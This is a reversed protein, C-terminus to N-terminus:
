RQRSREESPGVHDACLTVASSALYRKVLGDVTLERQIADVTAVVRPDDPPLFGVLPIMLTSAGLAPQGYSQTFVGRDDVANACVEAHVRARLVRWRTADSGLSLGEVTKVARDFAVWAMVKSYTFQAPLWDISGAKSVLAASRSDSLLAYDEIRRMSMALRGGRDASGQHYIDLAIM